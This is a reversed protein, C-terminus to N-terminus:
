FYFLILRLALACYDPNFSVNEVIEDIDMPAYFYPEEDDDVSM